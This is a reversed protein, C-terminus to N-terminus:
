KLKKRVHIRYVERWQVEDSSWELKGEFANPKMDFFAKGREIHNRM